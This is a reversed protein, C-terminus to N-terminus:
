NRRAASTQHGILAEAEDLLKSNGKFGSENVLKRALVVESRGSASNHIRFYAMARIARAEPAATKSIQMARQASLLAGAFDEMRYELLGLAMHSRGLWPSVQVAVKARRLARTYERGPRNSLVGTNWAAEILDDVPANGRQVALQVATRRLDPSLGTDAELDEIVEAALLDREFLKDLLLEADNNYASRSDWVRINRDSGSSLLRTGDPSWAFSGIVDGYGHAGLTVLLKGGRLDWISINGTSLNGLVARDGNPSIAISSIGLGARFVPLIQQLHRTSLDWIALAHGSDAPGIVVKGDKSLAMSRDWLTDAPTNANLIGLEQRTSPNWLAISKGWRHLGLLTRGDQAFAVQTIPSSTAIVAPAAASNLDWVRITQDGSSSAITGGDPSFAISWVDETHSSLTRVLAGSSASWLRVAKDGNATSALGNLAALSANGSAVLQSDPSIAVAWVPDGGAVWSRILRSSWGDYIRVRGDLSGTAFFKGDPSFVVKLPPAEQEIATPHNLDWEKTVGAGSTYLKPASPHFVVKLTEHGGNFSERLEASELNWLRIIEGSCTALMSDDPSLALASIATGAQWSRLLVGSAPNWVQVKGDVGGSALLGGDRSFSISRGGPKLISTSKRDPIDWIQIAHDGAIALRKANPSFRLCIVLDELGEFQMLLRGDRANWIFISSKPSSAPATSTKHSIVSAAAVLGGDDSVAANQPFGPMGRFESVVKQTGVNYLRLVVGEPSPEDGPEANPMILATTGHEGSALFRGFAPLDVVLRKTSLDWARLFSRSFCFVRSGDESLGLDTTHSGVRAYFTATSEDTRAMLYRWEWGRLDPAVEALRSRADSVHGSHLATDAAMLNATYSESEARQHERSEKVYLVFSIVGGALLTLAVASAAAVLGKYRRIWKLVRYGLDPAGALVPESALHRAIDAAFESASAYRRTRDKELAKMTIWELEGRLLRAMTRVDCRRHRAVEQAVEGMTSLRTSPKPPETERIVRQIEAYGARRLSKSDFPLAGVLLEYLLVGLSYVDTASDIDLGTLDAQEPSMYEPTGILMGIETFLTKETLRQNVAKAVGFDIVKPVPIGDQLMVLVNSPKLDRHIVGKQHAHHVAQCVQQFLALRQPFGLLNRDCYDTIPVGPVYEMAFYPRGSATTGADYIRAISPHDMLALAQSESAFRALVQSGADGSKLVKLAVRRRVPEHQEALYVIGMGGEGLVGVTRYPAFDPLAAPAIGPPPTARHQTTLTDDLGAELLCRRCLGEAVGDALPLGCRPCFQTHAM